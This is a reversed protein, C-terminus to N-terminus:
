WVFPQAYNGSSQSIKIEKVESEREVGGGGRGGSGGPSERGVGKEFGKGGVGYWVCVDAVTFVCVVREIIGVGGDGGDDRTCFPMRLVSNTSRKKWSAAEAIVPKM